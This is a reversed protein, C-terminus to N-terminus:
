KGWNYKSSWNSTKEGHFALISEMFLILEHRNRSFGYNTRELKYSRIYKLYKSNAYRQLKLDDRNDELIKFERCDGNRDLECFLDMYWYKLKM